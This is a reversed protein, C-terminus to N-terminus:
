MRFLITQFALQIVYLLVIIVMPSFDMMGVQCPIYRKVFDMVPDTIRFLFQVLPHYTDVDLYSIIIRIFLLIEYVNILKTILFFLVIRSM